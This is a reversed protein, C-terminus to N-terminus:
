VQSVMWGNMLGEVLETLGDVGMNDTRAILRSSVLVRIGEMTCGTGRIMFVSGPPNITDLRGIRQILM